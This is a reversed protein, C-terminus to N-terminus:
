LDNHGATDDNTLYLEHMNGLNRLGGVSRSVNCCTVETLITSM